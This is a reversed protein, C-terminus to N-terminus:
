LLMRRKKETANGEDVEEEIVMDEVVIGKMDKMFTELIFTLTSVKDHLDLIFMKIESVESDLSMLRSLTTHEKLQLELRSLNKHHIKQIDEKESLSM